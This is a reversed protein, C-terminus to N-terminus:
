FSLSFIASLMLLNKGQPSENLAIKCCLEMLSLSRLCNSRIFPTKTFLQSSSLVKGIRVVENSLGLSNSNRFSFNCALSSLSFVIVLVSSQSDLLLKIGYGDAVHFEFKNFAIQLLQTIKGKFEDV